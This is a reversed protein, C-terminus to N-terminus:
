GTKKFPKVNSTTTTTTAALRAVPVKFETGDSMQVRLAQDAFSVMVEQGEFEYKLKLTMNGTLTLTLSGDSGGGSNTGSSTGGTSGTNQSAMSMGGAESLGEEFGPAGVASLAARLETDDHMETSQEAGMGASAIAQDLVNALDSDMEPGQSSNASTGVTAEIAQDLIGTGTESEDDKLQALTSEMDSDDIQASAQIEKLIDEESAETTVEAKPATTTTTTTATASTAPANLTEQVTKQFDNRDKLSGKGAELTPFVTPDAEPEPSAATVVPAVPATSTVEMEHQLEEIESMIKELEDKETTAETM